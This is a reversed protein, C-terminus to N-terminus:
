VMSGGTEISYDFIILVFTTNPKAGAELPIRFVKARHADIDRDTSAM